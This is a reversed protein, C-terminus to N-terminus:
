KQDETESERTESESLEWPLPGDLEIPEAPPEDFPGPEPAHGLMGPNRGSAAPAEHRGVLAHRLRSLFPPKDPAAM